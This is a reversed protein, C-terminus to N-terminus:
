QRTRPVPALASYIAVFDEPLARGAMVDLYAQFMVEDDSLVDPQMIPQLADIIDMVPFKSRESLWKAVAQDDGRTLAVRSPQRARAAILQRVIQFAQGFLEMFDSDYPLPVMVLNTRKDRYPSVGSREDPFLAIRLGKAAEFSRKNVKLTTAVWHDPHSSGIFLDAKWIGRVSGPIQKRVKAQTAAKVLTGLLPKLLPGEPSHGDLVRSNDTILHSATEILHTKGSKEAGFLVSEAGGKVKCFGELAESILPFVTHDRNKIARHVAYEFCIGYDGDGEQYILAFDKLTINRYGGMREIYERSTSFLMGQLIPVVMAYRARVADSVNENQIQLSLRLTTM